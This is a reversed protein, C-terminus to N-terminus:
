FHQKITTIIFTRNAEKISQSIVFLVDYCTGGYPLSNAVTSLVNIQKALLNGWLLM